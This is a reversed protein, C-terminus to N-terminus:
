EFCLEAQQWFATILRPRRRMRKLTRRATEGLHWYDKACVNPLEHQKWYGWIYEVPNLEPAYAPLYEVWLREGQGSVFNRVIGSRHAALRDWVILKANLFSARNAGDVFSGGGKGNVWLVGDALLSGINNINACYLTM